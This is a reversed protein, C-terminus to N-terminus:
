VGKNADILNIYEAVDTYDVNYMSIRQLLPYRKRLLNNDDLYSQKIQEIKISKAYLNCLWMFSESNINSNKREEFKKGLTVYPSAPNNVLEGVEKTYCFTEYSNLSNYAVEALREPSLKLLEKAVHEELNIWNPQSKIFELDGKRVGYINLNFGANQLHGVLQKADIDIGTQSVPTFGNIPLYYYTQTQDFHAAVGANEWSVEVNNGYRRKWVSKVELKMINVINGSSVKKVASKKELSSALLVNVPNYISKLFGDFDAPKKRDCPELVFVTKTHYGRNTGVSHNRWHFKARALAGSKTDNKVFYVYNSPLISWSRTSIRTTSDYDDGPRVTKFVRNNDRYFSFASIEINYNKALDNVPIHINKLHGHQWMGPANVFMPDNTSVVYNLVADKWLVQSYKETLFIAREWANSIKSCNDLLISNLKSNLLALKSKIAEITSPIYSLGERSPQFDLEGIAFHIELDCDLLKHLDGLNKKANPVDIPYAINGMVAVSTAKRGYEYAVAHIGPVIDRDHYKIIKPSFGSAGFVVPQLTFYSFIDKAEELFKGYDRSDFVAFKIELGAPEDTAEGETTPRGHEDLMMPIVSPKGEQNIFASYIRKRGGKIATITFNETYSFPSKSGLGLAGVFDNSDTKTSEFYTTYVDVVENHDLGVGYDRISFYPSLANPLHLDFPVTGKGAAIHSDVANTSLERIIARIKNPYLSSSLINFAKASNRIRFETAVGANSIVAENAPTNNLIM